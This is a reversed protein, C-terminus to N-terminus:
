KKTQLKSTKKRWEIHSVIKPHTRLKDLTNYERGLEKANPIVNHITRHCSRCIDIGLALQEKTYRKQFWKNTHLTRPIFHHFSDTIDSGCLECLINMM